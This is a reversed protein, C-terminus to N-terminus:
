LANFGYRHSYEFTQSVEPLSWSQIRERACSELLQSKAAVESFAVHEARGGPAVTVTVTIFAQRVNGPIEGAEIAETFCHTMANRKREFYLSVAELDEPPILGEDAPEEAAPPTPAPTDPPPTESGGCAILACALGAALAFGSGRHRRRASPAGRLREPRGRAASM